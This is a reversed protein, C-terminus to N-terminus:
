KKCTVDYAKQWTGGLQAEGWLKIQKADLQEFDRLQLTGQPSTATGTWTWKGGSEGTSTSIVHGTTSALQIKTWQKAIADFTRYETWKLPGKVEALATVIWANDLDLKITLTATLPASSGDGRLSVGKCQWAGLMQKGVAAVEPAPKPPPPPPPPQRRPKPGAPKGLSDTTPGFDPPPRRVASASGAAPQSPVARDAGAVGSVGTWIIGAIVIFLPLRSM